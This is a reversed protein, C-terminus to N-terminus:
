IKMERKVNFTCKCSIQGWCSQQFKSLSLVALSSTCLQYVPIAFWATVLSCCSVDNITACQVFTSGLARLALTASVWSSARNTMCPMYSNFHRPVVRSQVLSAKSSGLFDFSCLVDVFMRTAAAWISQRNFGGGGSFLVLFAISLLMAERKSLLAVYWHSGPANPLRKATSVSLNCGELKFSHLSCMVIYCLPVKRRWGM